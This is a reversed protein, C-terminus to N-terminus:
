QCAGDLCREGSTCDCDTECQVAPVEPTQCYGGDCAQGDDCQCSAACRALCVGDMCDSGAACDHNISCSPGDPSVGDGDGDGDGDGTTGGFGPTLSDDGDEWVFPLPDGECQEIANSGCLQESVCSCGQEVDEEKQEYRDVCISLCTSYSADSIAGCEVLKFCYPQCADTARESLPPEPSAIDSSDDSDWDDDWDGWDDGDDVDVYCGVFAFSCLGLLGLIKLHKM